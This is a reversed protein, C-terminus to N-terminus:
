RIDANLGYYGGFDLRSVPMTRSMRLLSAGTLRETLRVKSQCAPFVYGFLFQPRLREALKNLPYKGKKKKKKKERQVGGIKDSAMPHSQVIKVIEVIM